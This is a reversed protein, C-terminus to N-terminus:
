QGLFKISGSIKSYSLKFLQKKQKQIHDLEMYLIILIHLRVVSNSLFHGGPDSFRLIHRFEIFYKEHDSINERLDIMNLNLNMTILTPKISGITDINSIIEAHYAQLLKEIMLIAYLPLYKTTSDCFASNDDFLNPFELQLKHNEAHATVWSQYEAFKCAYAVVCCYLVFLKQRESTCMDLIKRFDYENFDIQCNKDVLPYDPKIESCM